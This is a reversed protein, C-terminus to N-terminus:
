WGHVSVSCTFEYSLWVLLYLYTSNSNTIPPTYLGATYAGKGHPGSQIPEEQPHWDVWCNGCKEASKYSCCFHNLYMEDVMNTSHSCVYEWTKQELIKDWLKLFSRHLLIQFLFGLDSATHATHIEMFIFYKYLFCWVSSMWDSWKSHIGEEM